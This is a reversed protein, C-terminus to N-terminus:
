RSAIVDIIVLVDLSRTGVLEAEGCYGFVIRTVEVRVQFLMKEGVSKPNKVRHPFFRERAPVRRDSSAGGIVARSDIVNEGIYSV